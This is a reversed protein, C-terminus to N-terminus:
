QLTDIATMKPCHDGSLSRVIVFYDFQRSKEFGCLHYIIGIM